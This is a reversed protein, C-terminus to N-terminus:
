VKPTQIALGREKLGALTNLWGLSSRDIRVPMNVRRGEVLFPTPITHTRLWRWLQYFLATNAFRPSEDVDVIEGSNEQYLQPYALTMGFFLTETGYLGFRLEKTQSSYSLFTPSLQIIPATPQMLVRGEPLILRTFSSEDNSISLSVLSRLELSQLGAKLPIFAKRYETLFSEKSLRENKESVVKATVYLYFDPLEKMLAEM